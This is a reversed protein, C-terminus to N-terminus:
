RSESVLTKARAPCDEIAAANGIHLAKEPYELPM